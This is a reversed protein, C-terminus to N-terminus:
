QSSNPLDVEGPRGPTTRTALHRITGNLFGTDARPRRRSTLLEDLLPVPSHPSIAARARLSDEWRAQLAQILAERMRDSVHTYLGRMGPVEHGLRQEALIDPIGDEAMWTRHGHRLGHATLGPVLPLWSALPVGDPVIRIGRGRPPVYGETRRRGPNRSALFRAPRRALHHRRRHRDPALRRQGARETRRLRPPVGPPRLQEAPSAQRRPLPVPVPRQRRAGRYLRVAAAPLEPGAQRAPRGSVAPSRGAPRAGPRPQPLLRGQAPDPLVQRRGRPDAM